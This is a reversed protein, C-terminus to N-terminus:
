RRRMSSTTSNGSIQFSRVSRYDALMGPLTAAAAARPWDAAVQDILHAELERQIARGLWARRAALGLASAAAGIAAPAWALSLAALAVALGLLGAHVPPLLARALAAVGAAQIRGQGGAVDVLLLPRQALGPVGEATVATVPRGEFEGADAGAIIRADARFGVVRGQVRFPQM